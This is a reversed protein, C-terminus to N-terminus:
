FLSIAKIKSDECSNNEMKWFMMEDLENKPSSKEFFRLNNESLSLMIEKTQEDVWKKRQVPDILIKHIENLEKENEFYFKKNSFMRMEEDCKKYIIIPIRAVISDYVTKGIYRTSSKGKGIFIYGLHSHLFDFYEDSDGKMFGEEVEINEFKKIKELSNTGKGFIKMPISFENKSFIDIFAKSRSINVTDFFGIYCFKDDHVNSSCREKMRKYNKKVLFFVDDSVYITNNEMTKRDTMRYMENERDYLTEPIWDFFEKSGNAMWYVNRYNWSKWTVFERAKRVNEKSDMFANRTKGNEDADKLRVNAMMRYDRVKIESDNVRIFVPIDLDNTCRSVIKYFLIENDNLYGGFFNSHSPYSVICSFNKLKFFDSEEHIMIIEHPFDYHESLFVKRALTKNVVIMYFKSSSNNEYLSKLFKVESVISGGRTPDGHMLIGVNNVM